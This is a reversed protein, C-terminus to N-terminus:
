QCKKTINRIKYRNIEGLQTYCITLDDKIAVSFPLAYTDNGFKKLLKRPNKNDRINLITFEDSSIKTKNLLEKTESRYSTSIVVFEINKYKQQNKKMFGLERMCLVCNNEVFAFITIPKKGFDDEDYFKKNNIDPLSFSIKDGVKAAANAPSLSSFILLSTIILIKLM